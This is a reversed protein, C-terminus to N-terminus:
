LLANIQSTRVGYTKPNFSKEEPKVFNLLDDYETSEEMSITKFEAIKEVETEMASSPTCKIKIYSTMSTGGINIKNRTEPIMTCIGPLTAREGKKISEAMSERAAKFVRRIIEESLGSRSSIDNYRDQIGIGTM